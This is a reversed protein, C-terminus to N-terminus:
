PTKLGEFPARWKEYYRHVQDLGLLRVSTLIEHTIKHVLAEEALREEDSADFRQLFRSFRVIHVLEHTAIYLVFPLLKIEPAEALVALIASDQLCIKYFDYADSGLSRDKRQGEYRIIQAFPGSVIEGADLDKLTKIDYRQRLWQSASMKYHNSVLEEAMGVATNVTETQQADFCDFTEM